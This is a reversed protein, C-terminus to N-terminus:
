SASPMPVFYRELVDDLLRDAFAADASNDCRHLAGPVDLLIMSAGFNDPEDITNTTSLEGKENLPETKKEIKM